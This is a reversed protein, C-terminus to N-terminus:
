VALAASLMSGRHLYGNCRRHESNPRVKSWAAPTWLSPCSWTWLGVSRPLTTHPVLILLSQSQVHRCIYKIIIYPACARCLPPRRYNANVAPYTSFCNTNPPRPPDKSVVSRRIAVAVHRSPPRGRLYPGYNDRTGHARRPCHRGTTLHQPQQPLM